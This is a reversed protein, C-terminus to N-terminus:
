IYPCFVAACVICLFVALGLLAMKSETFDSVFRRFPSEIPPLPDKKVQETIEKSSITM